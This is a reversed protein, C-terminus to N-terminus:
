ECNKKEHKDEKYDRFLNYLFLGALFLVLVVWIIAVTAKM